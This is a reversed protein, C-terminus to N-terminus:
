SIIGDKKLLKTRIAYRWNKDTNSDWAEKFTMGDKYEEAGYKELLAETSVDFKKGTGGGGTRAKAQSKMLRVTPETEGFDWSFWIGDAADLQKSDILPKVAELITLGVTDKIAELAARKADLEAKEEARVIQDIKRSVQTVLKWDGAAMATQMEAMLSEKTPQEAPQAETAEAEPKTTADEPKVDKAMLYVEM